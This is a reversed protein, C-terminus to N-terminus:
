HFSLQDLTCRAGPLQTTTHRIKQRDSLPRRSASHLVVGYLSALPDDVGYGEKFSARCHGKNSDKQYGRRLIASQDPRRDPFQSRSM